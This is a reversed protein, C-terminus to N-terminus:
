RLLPNASRIKPKPAEFNVQQMNFESSYRSAMGEVHYSLRNLLYCEDENYKAKAEVLFNQLYQLKDTENEFTITKIIAMVEDYEDGCSEIFDYSLDITKMTDLAKSFAFHNYLLCGIFYEIDSNEFESYHFEEDEFRKHWIELVKVVKEKM